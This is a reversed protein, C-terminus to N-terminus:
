FRYWVLHLILGYQRRLDRILQGREWCERLFDGLHASANTETNLFLSGGDHSVALKTRATQELQRLHSWWHEIAIGRRNSYPM